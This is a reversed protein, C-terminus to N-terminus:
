AAAKKRSRTAWGLVGLGALMLPAAAPLPVAAPPTVPTVSWSSKGIDFFEMHTITLGNKQYGLAAMGKFVPDNVLSFFNSYNFDLPYNSDIVLFNNLSGDISIRPALTNSFDGLTSDWGMVNLSGGFATGNFFLSINSVQELYDGNLQGDLSGTVQTGDGFTYAFNYSAALGSLPQALCGILLMKILKNM